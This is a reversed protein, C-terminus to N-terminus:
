HKNKTEDLDLVGCDIVKVEAKPVGRQNGQSEIANVVDMGEVVKGFVVHKGDLWGCDVTTIFFQSGNTNPGRNAMSLLGASNHSYLFNEDGFAKGYISVSGTGDGRMIDGGQCMFGPIIRHFKSNKYTLLKGDVTKDGKCLHFFNLATRPCDKAFLEFIIRGKVNGDISIDFFTKLNERVNQPEQMYKRKFIQHLHLSNLKTKTKFM